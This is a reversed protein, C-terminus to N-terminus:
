RGEDKRREALTRAQKQRTHADYGLYDAMKFQDFLRKSIKWEDNERRFVDVILLSVFIAPLSESVATESTVHAATMCTLCAPNGADDIFIVQNINGHRVGYFPIQLRAMEAKGKAYGFAHDIEIDDTLLKMLEENNQSIFAWEFLRTLEMMEVKDDATLQYDDKTVLKGRRFLSPPVSVTALQKLDM